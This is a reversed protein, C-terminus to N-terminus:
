SASFSIWIRVTAVCVGLVRKLGKQKVANQKLVGQWNLSRVKRETMEAKSEPQSREIVSVRIEWPFMM